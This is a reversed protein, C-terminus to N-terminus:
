GTCGWRSAALEARLSTALSDSERRDSLVTELGRIEEVEAAYGELLARTQHLETELSAARRAEAAAAAANPRDATPGDSPFWGGAPTPAPAQPPPPGGPTFCPTSHHHYAGGSTGSAAKAAAETAAAIASVTAASPAFRNFGPTLATLETPTPPRRPQPQHHSPQHSPPYHPPQQSPYQQEDAAGGGGGGGGGGDGGGSGLEHQTHHWAAQIQPSSSRSSAMQMQQQTPTPQMQPFRQQSQSRAMVRGAAGRASPAGALIACYVDRGEADGVTDM